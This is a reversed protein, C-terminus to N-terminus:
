EVLERQKKGVYGIYLPHDKHFASPLVLIKRVERASDKQAVLQKNKNM